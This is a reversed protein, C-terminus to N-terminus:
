AAAGLVVDDASVDTDLVGAYCWYVVADDLADDEHLEHILWPQEPHDPALNLWCAVRYEFLLCMLWQGDAEGPGRVGMKFLDPLLGLDNQQAIDGRIWFVEGDEDCAWSPWSDTPM